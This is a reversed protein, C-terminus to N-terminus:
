SVANGEVRIGSARRDIGQTLDGTVTKGYETGIVAGKRIGAIVNGSIVVNREKPVLSVGIGIDADRIMNGTAVLNRMGWSWGLSLATDSVTEIVNGTVSAEAEVHIGFGGIIEKGKPAFGKRVRRVLNGSCVALRGGQDLNTISIGAAVDEVRNNSIIAGEFTFESYLGVEGCRQGNNGLIQVGSGSNNRIFTYACDRLINSEVLVGGARFVSIGNGFQGNGERENRIRSVRNGRVITGDDGAASRWVQIGNTGCDEVINGEIALGRADISFLASEQMLAFRSHAVRGGCRNLTLGIAGANAFSLDTLTADAVDELVVIGNREPQRMLLGDFGLGSLSIRKLKGATLIAVPRAAVLQTAGPVGIINAGDPLAVGAAMYRGPPLLLPLQRKAAEGLAKSLAASQDDPSGPKLGLTTADLGFGGLATARALAPAVFGCAGLSGLGLTGFLAMQLAERRSIPM